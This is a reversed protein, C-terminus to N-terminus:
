AVGHISYALIKEKTIIEPHYENIKNLLIKEYLSSIFEQPKNAMLGKLDDKQFRWWRLDMLKEIIEETFRYKIIKAPAGGVIAYPPVDKTIVSNSAIIAGHGINIGSKIVVDAGIWVDNGINLKQKTRAIHNIDNPNLDHHDKEYFHPSTSVWDTFHEAGILKINSALSCYRGIKVGYGLNSSSYSFCGISCLNSVNGWFNNNGELRIDENFTLLRSPDKNLFHMKINLSEFLKIVKKYEIKSVQNSTQYNYQDPIM